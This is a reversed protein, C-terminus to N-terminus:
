RCKTFLHCHYYHLPSKATWFTCEINESCMKWRMWSSQQWVHLPACQFYEVLVSRLLRFTVPYRLPVFFHRVTVFPAFVPPHSAVVMGPKKTQKHVERAIHRKRERLMWTAATVKRGTGSVYVSALAASLRWLRHLPRNRITFCSALIRWGKTSNKSALNTFFPLASPTQRTRKKGRARTECRRRAVSERARNVDKRRVLCVPPAAGDRASRSGGGVLIM